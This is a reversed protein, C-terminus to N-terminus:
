KRTTVDGTWRRHRDDITM